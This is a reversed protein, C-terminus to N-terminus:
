IDDTVSLKSKDNETVSAQSNPIEPSEKVIGLEEDGCKPCVLEYEDM